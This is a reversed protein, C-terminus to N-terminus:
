TLWNFVKVSEFIMSNIDQFSVNFIQENKSRTLHHDKLFEKELLPALLRAVDSLSIRQFYEHL